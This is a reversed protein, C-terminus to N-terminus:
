PWTRSSTIRPETIATTTAKKMTIAQAAVSCRSPMWSMADPASAARARAGAPRASRSSATRRRGRSRRATRPRSGAGPSPRSRTRPARARPRSDVAREALRGLEVPEVRQQDHARGAHDQQGPRREELDDQHRLDQVAHQQRRDEHEHQHEGVALRQHASERVAADYLTTAQAVTAASVTSVTRSTTVLRHGPPASSGDHPHRGPICKRGTRGRGRLRWPGCSRFRSRRGAPRRRCRGASRTAPRGSRRLREQDLDAPRDHQRDAEPGRPQPQLGAQARGARREDSVRATSTSSTSGTTNM